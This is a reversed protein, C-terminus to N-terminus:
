FGGMCTDEDFSFCPIQDNRNYCTNLSWQCRDGAAICSDAEYFFRCAAPAGVGGCGNYEPHWECGYIAATCM